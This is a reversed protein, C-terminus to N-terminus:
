IYMYRKLRKVFKLATVHTDSNLKPNDSYIFTLFVYLINTLFGLRQHSSLTSIIKSFCTTLTHFPNVQNLIARTAPMQSYPLSGKSDKFTPSKSALGLHM